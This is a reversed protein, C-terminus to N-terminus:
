DHIIENINYTIYFQFLILSNVQLDTVKKSLITETLNEVKLTDLKDKIMYSLSYGRLIGNINKPPTWM